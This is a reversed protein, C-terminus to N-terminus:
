CLKLSIYHTFNCIPGAFLVFGGPDGFYIVVFSHLKKLMKALQADHYASYAFMNSFSIHQVILRGGGNGLKCHFPFALMTNTLEQERGQTRNRPIM